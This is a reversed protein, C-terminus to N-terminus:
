RPNIVAKERESLDSIVGLKAFSYDLLKKTDDRRNTSGLIVGLVEIKGRKAFTVLTLGAEPTFGTKFGLVGPYTTLLNIGSYLDYDQHNEDREIYIHEKASVELLKPWKKIAYRSMIAVDKATSYQRKLEGLIPEEELGSPNAFLSDFMGLQKSKENMSEIFQKRSELVEEALVEAADNASVLFMGMLLEEVTLKEGEILFMKDPEMLSARKSVELLEDWSSHELAVTATMIKVLSAIPLREKSRREYLVEGSNAEVFFAARATIETEFKEHTDLVQNEKPFWVNEFLRNRSMGMVPAVLKIEQRWIILYAMLTFILFFVVPLFILPKRSM